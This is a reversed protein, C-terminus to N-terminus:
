RETHGSPSADSRGLWAEIAEPLGDIPCYGHTVLTYGETPAGVLLCPFGAVGSQKAFAFDQATVSRAEDTGLAAAFGDREFGCEGAIDALTEPATVDRNHAYFAQGIASMMQLAVRDSVQRAVVVARCAPETDYIFSPRDFFAHDFPQGSAAAVRGWADAVYAKDKDRMPLSHGPQLGGMVIRLGLRESFRDALATVVPEFGYCWSCM